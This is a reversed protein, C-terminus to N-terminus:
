LLPVYHPLFRYLVRHPHRLYVRVHARVSCVEEDSVFDAEPLKGGIEQLIQGVQEGPDLDAEAM